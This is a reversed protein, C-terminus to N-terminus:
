PKLTLVPCRAQRVVHNMTSGIALLGARGTHAGLVIVDADLEAATRLIEVYAKGEAIVESASSGHGGGALCDHLHRVAIEKAHADYEPTGPGGMMVPDFIPVREVVHLVALTAGSAGALSRAYDLAKLSAPSFDVACLIRTFLVPGAPVADPARRPVTLVPCPAKVLVHETVSGMFLREFGSRGHTGLVLLDAPLEAARRVIERVPSGEVVDSGIPTTGISDAAFMALERRFQDLDAPSYAFPPYLGADGSPIASAIPAVVHLASVNAGYYRAIAVAYDLAHRSFESFDVPCLVRKIDTM